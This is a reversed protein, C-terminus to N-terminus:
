YPNTSLESIEQFEISLPVCLKKLTDSRPISEGSEIHSIQAQSIGSLRSLEGQSLGKAIRAEKITNSLVDKCNAYGRYGTDTLIKIFCIELNDCLTKLTFPHPIAAGIEIQYIQNLSIGSLSSLTQKSYGKAIRANRITNGLINNNEEM